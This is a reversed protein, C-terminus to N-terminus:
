GSLSFPKQNQSSKVPKLGNNYDLFQISLVQKLDKFWTKKYKSNNDGKAVENKRDYDLQHSYVYCAYYLFRENIKDHCNNQMEITIHTGDEAVKHYDMTVQTNGKEKNVPASCSCPKLGQFKESVEKGILNDVIYKLSEEDEIINKFSSDRRADALSKKCRRICNFDKIWDFEHQYEVSIRNHKYYYVYCKKEKEIKKIYDTGMPFTICLLPTIPEKPQTVGSMVINFKQPTKTLIDYDQQNSDCETFYVSDDSIVAM